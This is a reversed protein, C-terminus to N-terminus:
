IVQNIESQGFGNYIEQVLDFWGLLHLHDSDFRRCVAQLAALVGLLSGVGMFHKKEFPGSLSSSLSVSEFDTTSVM